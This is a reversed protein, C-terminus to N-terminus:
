REPTGQPPPAVPVKKWWIAYGQHPLLYRNLRFNYTGTGSASTDNELDAHHISRARVVRPTPGRDVITINVSEMPYMTQCIETDEEEKAMTFEYVIEVEADSKISLECARFPVHSLTDDKIAERFRTETEAVQRDLYSQTIGPMGEVKIKVVKCFPKLENIVPNPLAIVLPLSSTSNSINKIKFRLVTELEVFKQQAGYRDTYIKDQLTYTVNTGLRIFSHDLVLINAEKIFEQPFNRKFVGFFVNKAILEIRRNWHEDSESQSFFEFSSWIIVAVVFAFGIEQLFDRWFGSPVYGAALLLIVGVAGAIVANGFKFRPKDNGAGNM